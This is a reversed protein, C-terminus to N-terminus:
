HKRDGSPPISSPAIRRLHEPWPWWSSSAVRKQPTGVPAVGSRPTITMSDLDPSAGSTSSGSIGALPQFIHAGIPLGQTTKAIHHYSGAYSNLGSCAGGSTSSSASLYPVQGYVLALHKPAPDRTLLELNGDERATFM